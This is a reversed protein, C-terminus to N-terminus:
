MKKQKIIFNKVVEKFHDGREEFSKYRDYSTASPSLIVADGPISLSFAISVAEEMNAASRRTFGDPLCESIQGACEGLLVAGRAYKAIREGLESFSLGKDKGGLIVTCRRELSSLTALTRAPTTDISSNIFTISSLEGVEEMRHNLGHFSHAVEEVWRPTVYGDTLAMACMLNLLNHHEKRTVSNTPFLPVGNRCISGREVTYVIRKGLPGLERYSKETSFIAYVKEDKALPSSIPDDFNIVGGGTNRFVSTKAAKYEDFSAHWNLHNPTICTIAARTSLPELYRLTFSSLEAVTIEDRGLLECLPRGINGAVIADPHRERLLEGVLASTTSKGDSGTVAIVPAQVASFFLEADSTFLTGRAAFKSFEARERRVSPSCILVTEKPDDFARDGDYIEIPSVRNPIDARDINAESRIIVDKDKLMGLIARNSRGLGFVGIRKADKIIPLDSLTM